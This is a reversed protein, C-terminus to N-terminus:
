FDKNAIRSLVQQAVVTLFLISFIIQIYLIFYATDKEVPNAILAMLSRRFAENCSIKCIQGPYILRFFTGILLIEFYAVFNLVLARNTSIANWDYRLIFQNVWSQFIDFLRFGYFGFLILILWEPLLRSSNHLWILVAAEMIIWSVVFCDIYKYPKRYFYYKIRYHQEKTGSIWKSPTFMYLLMFIYRLARLIWGPNTWKSGVQKQRQWELENRFEWDHWVYWFAALLLISVVVGSIWCGRSLLYPIFLLFLVTLLGLGGAIIKIVLNHFNQRFRSYKRGEAIIHFVATMSGSFCSIVVMM